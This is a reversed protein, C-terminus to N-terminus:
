HITPPTWKRLIEAMAVSKADGLALLKAILATKDMAAVTDAGRRFFHLSLAQSTWM